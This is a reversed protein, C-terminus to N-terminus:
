QLHLFDSLGDANLTKAFSAGDMELGGGVKASLLNVDGSFTSKGLMYWDAGVSLNEADLKKAFSANSM